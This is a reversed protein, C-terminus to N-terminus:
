VGIISKLVRKLDEANYYMIIHGKNDGILYHTDIDGNKTARDLMEIIQQSKLQNQEKETGPIERNWCYRCGNGGNSKCNATSEDDTEYGYYSPCQRCGGEYCNGVWEPHEQMLREKFTM